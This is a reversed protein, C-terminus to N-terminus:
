LRVAQDAKSKNALRLPSSYLNTVFPSTGQYYRAQGAELGIAHLHGIITHRQREGNNTTSSETETKRIAFTVYPCSLTTTVTLAVFGPLVGTDPRPLASKETCSEPLGCDMVVKAPDVPTLAGAFSPGLSNLLMGSKRSLLPATKTTKSVM